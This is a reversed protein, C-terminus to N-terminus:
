EEGTVAAQLAKAGESPEASGNGKRINDITDRLERDSAKAKRARDAVYTYLGVVNDPTLSDLNVGPDLKAVAACRLDHDTMGDKIEVDALTAVDHELRARAEAEARAAKKLEDLDPAADKLTQVEVELGAIKGEAQEARKTAADRELAVRSLTEAVGPRCKHTEGDLVIQVWGNDLPTTEPASMHDAETQAWPQSEKGASDLLIRAGPGARGKALIAAHNHSIPFQRADYTEGEWEGSEMVVRGRYGLSIERAEGNLVAQQADQRKIILPAQTYGDTVEVNLGVSGVGYEDVNDPSVMVPPHDLTLTIGGIDAVMDPALVDDPHRLVRVPRGQSDHYLYVGARSLRAPVVMSGDGLMRAGQNDIPARDWFVHEAATM